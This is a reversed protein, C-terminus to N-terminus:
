FINFVITALILGALSILNMVMFTTSIKPTKLFKHTQSVLLISSFTIQIYFYLTMLTTVIMITPLIIYSKSVLTQIVLWKPLFGLFPPLGGLSLFNLAFFMKLTPFKNLLMSMQNLSFINFKYFLYLINTTIVTYIIFYIMWTIELFMMATLMWGIHNISSYALIKRLSVQNQGMIGSVMMCSIVVLIIMMPTKCTYLILIMPAIKQWTLLIWSNTWSLGEIVEPFWFHLPAAGMKMLLASNLMMDSIMETKLLYLINSSNIILAFLLVMSAMAQSIFYKLASESTFKNSPSSMLPIFSLLNIELGLWMGLWSYASIAILTGIVLTISFLIKNLNTVLCSLLM